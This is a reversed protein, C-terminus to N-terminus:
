QLTQGTVGGQLRCLPLAATILSSTQEIRNHDGTEGTLLTRFQTFGALLDLALQLDLDAPLEGRRVARQLMHECTARRPVRITVNFAEALRPNRSAEATMDLVIRAFLPDSLTTATASVYARVDDRLNGTDTMPVQKGAIIAVVDVVMAEKSPWRRYLAAKGAGARRAVAGMSLGAYGIEALELAAAEVITDTVTQRLAATGRARAPIDPM